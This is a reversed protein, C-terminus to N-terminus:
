NWPCGKMEVATKMSALAKDKFDDHGHQDLIEKIDEQNLLYRNGVDLIVKLITSQNMTGDDNIIATSEKQLSRMM